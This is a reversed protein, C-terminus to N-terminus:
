RRHPRSDAIHVTIPEGTSVRRASKLPALILSRLASARGCKMVRRRNPQPYRRAPCAVGAIALTIAASAIYIEIYTVHVILASGISHTLAQPGFLAFTLAASVRGQLENPTARMAVNLTALFV